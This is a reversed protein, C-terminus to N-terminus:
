NSANAVKVKYSVSRGSEHAACFAEYIRRLEEPGDLELVRAFFERLAETDSM